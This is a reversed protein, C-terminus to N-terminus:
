KKKFVNPLTEKELMKDIYWINEFAKDCFQKYYGRVRTMEVVDAMAYDKWEWQTKKTREKKSLSIQSRDIKVIKKCILCRAQNIREEIYTEVYYM